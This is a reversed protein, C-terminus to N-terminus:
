WWITHGQMGKRDPTGYVLRLDKTRVLYKCVRQYAEWLKVSFNHVYCGLVSVAHALNPRAWVALHIIKGHAHWVKARLATDITDPCDAKSETVHPDLQPKVTIGSHPDQDM